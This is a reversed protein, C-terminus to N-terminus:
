RGTSDLIQLVVTSHLVSITYNEEKFILPAGIPLNVSIGIVSINTIFLVSESVSIVVEISEDNNNSCINCIYYKENSDSIQVKSTIWFQLKLIHCLQITNNFLSLAHTWFYQNDLM